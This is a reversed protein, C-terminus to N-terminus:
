KLLNFVIDMSELLEKGKQTTFYMDGQPNSDKICILDKELLMELYKQFHNYPMNSQYM